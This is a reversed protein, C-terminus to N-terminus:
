LHFNDMSDGKFLAGTKCGHVVTPNDMTEQTM